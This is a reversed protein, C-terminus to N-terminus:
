SRVREVVLWHDFGMDEPKLDKINKIFIEKADTAAQLGSLLSRDLINVTYVISIRRADVRPDRDLGDLVMLFNLDEPDVKLGVEEELERVCAHAVSKDGLDVHGGPMVLKDMFPEKARGILVVKENNITVLADTTILIQSM